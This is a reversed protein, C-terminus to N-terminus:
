TVVFVGERPLKGFKVQSTGEHSTGMLMPENRLPLVYLPLALLVGRMRLRLVLHADTAV